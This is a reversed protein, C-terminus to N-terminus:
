KGAEYGVTSTWGWLLIHHSRGDRLEPPLLVEQHHRDVAAYPQGDLYVLAEPHSFQGADGLPLHLAVPADAAFNAPVNFSGRMVFNINAGGWYSHPPLSVWDSDDFQADLLHADLERMEKYRFPALQQLQRYVLTEVINQYRGIKQQTLRITHKM